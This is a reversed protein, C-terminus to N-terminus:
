LVGVDTNESKILANGTGGGGDEGATDRGRDRESLRDIVYLEVGGGVFKNELM